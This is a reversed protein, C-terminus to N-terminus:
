PCISHPAGAGAGGLAAPLGAARSEGWRLVGRGGLLVEGEFPRGRALLGGGAAGCRPRGERGPRGVM